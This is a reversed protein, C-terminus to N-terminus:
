TYYQTVNPQLAERVFTSLKVNNLKFFVECHRRSYLVHFSNSLFYM